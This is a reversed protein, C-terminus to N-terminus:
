RAAVSRRVDRLLAEADHPGAFLAALEGRPNVLMVATSHDMMYDGDMPIKRFPVGLATAFSGVEDPDGTLGSFGPGFGALYAKLVAPTDREPDVSVLLISPVQPGPQGAALERRVNGLMALTTPCAEPCHTFGFFVLSWRGQLAEPGRAAGEQDLLRFAPMPRPPSLWTGSELVVPSEPAPAPTLVGRGIVIGALGAALLLLPIWIRQSM